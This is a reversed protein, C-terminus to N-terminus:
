SVACWKHHSIIIQAGGKKECVMACMLPAAPRSSSMMGSDKSKRSHIITEQRTKWFEERDDGEQGEEREGERGGKRGEWSERKCARVSPQGRKGGEGRAGGKGREERVAGDEERRRGCCM